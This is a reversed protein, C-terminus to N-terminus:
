WQDSDTATWFTQESHMRSQPIYYDEGSRFCFAFYGPHYSVLARRITRCIVYDCVLVFGGNDCIECTKNHLYAPHLLARGEADHTPRPVEGAGDDPEGMHEVGQGDPLTRRRKLASAKSAHESHIRMHNSVATASAFCASCVRCVFALATTGAASMLGIEPPTEAAGDTEMSAAPSLFVMFVCLPLIWSPRYFLTSKYHCRIKDWGCVVRCVGLMEGVAYFTSVFSWVNYVPKYLPSCVSDALLLARYALVAFLGVVGAGLVFYVSLRGCEALATVLDFRAESRLIDGNHPDIGKFNV